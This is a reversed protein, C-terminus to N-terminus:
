ERGAFLRFRELIRYRRSEPTEKYPGALADRIKLENYVVNEMLHPEEIQRFNLRANQLGADTFYFKM